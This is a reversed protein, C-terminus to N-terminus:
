LNLSSYILFKSFLNHKYLYMFVKKMFQMGHVTLLQAINVNDWTNYIIYLHNLIKM